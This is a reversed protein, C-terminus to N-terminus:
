RRQSFSLCQVVGDYLQKKTQALFGQERKENLLGKFALRRLHRRIKKAIEIAETGTPDFKLCPADEPRELYEIAACTALRMYHSVDKTDLQYRSKKAYIKTTNRTHKFQQLALIGSFIKKSTNFSFLARHWVKKLLNDFPSYDDAIMSAMEIWVKHRVHMDFRMEWYTHSLLPSRFSKIMKFPIYYNHAIIDTALHSLYGYAAAREENTRAGTLVKQGVQWNHCHHLPGAYKKGVLIDAAVSGYLFWKERGAVVARIVPAMIVIKELLSLGIEIHTGPGWAFANDPLLLFISLYIITYVFM